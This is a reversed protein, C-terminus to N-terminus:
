PSDKDMLALAQEYQYNQLLPKLENLLQKQEVSLSTATLQQLHQKISRPRRRAIERKLKQLLSASDEATKDHSRSAATEELPSFDVKSLETTIVAHEEMLETVRNWNQNQQIDAAITALKTAGMSGAIGKLSHVLRTAEDPQTEKLALLKTLATPKNDLFSKLLSLYLRQDGNVRQLGLASDISKLKPLRLTLERETATDPAQGAEAASRKPLYKMLTKFLKNVEIPKNLHENMGYAQTKQTDRLLADATLAIIPVDPDQHRIRATAQYGDMIPMQIDMLIMQYYDPNALYLDVAEKGNEADKIQIGSHRLLGHVILRNTKNDDVLLIRNDQYAQLQKITTEDCTISRYHEEVHYGFSELLADHFRSPNIPKPLLKTIGAENFTQVLTRPCLPPILLIFHQINAPSERLRKVLKLSSDTDFAHDIIALDFNENGEILNKVEKIRAAEHCNLGMAKALHKLTMRTAQSSELLLLNKGELLKPPIDADDTAKLPLEVCFRSGQGQESELWIRGHMLNVLQKTIALGLGTGGYKRTTSVDAQSFTDFLRAKAEESIGIGSDWICIHLLGKPSVQLNVGIEGKETFKAANNLLNTLIQSLRTPDGLFHRPMDQQYDINFGLQKESVKPSVLISVKEVTHHLDFEIEELDLKSAEIKSFDLIDNLLNLLANASLEINDFYSQQEADLQTQQILYNMGIIAHMPTRIEHSMNALFDSKARAAREAIEKAKLLASNSTELESTRQKVKTELAASLDQYQQLLKHTDNNKQRFIGAAHSLEGLEDKLRYPPIPADGSGSALNRFTETLRMIPRTISQGLIYSLSGVSILLGLGVFVVSQVLSNLSTQLEDEIGRMAKRYLGQVQRSQYLIEYAEAAMVVNVLYLYGRTRQVAELFSGQYTSLVNLLDAMNQRAPAPIDQARLASVNKRANALNNKALEIHKANLTDFYRFANKEVSLLENLIRLGARRIDQNNPDLNHMCKRILDEAKTAQDRLTKSVLTSQLERQKRLKEFASIYAKLHQEIKAIHPESILGDIQRVAAIGATIEEVIYLVRDAAASHGEHTYLEAARQMEAIQNAIQLSTQAQNSFSSFNRFEEAIRQISLYALSVLALAVLGIAYYALNIRLKLGINNILYDIM